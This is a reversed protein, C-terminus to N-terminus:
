GRGAGPGAPATRARRAREIVRVFAEDYDVRHEAIEVVPLGARDLAERIVPAAADADRVVIRWRRPEVEELAGTVVDLQTLPALAAADVRRALEVDVVEGHFAARRLNEPTDLMLLEGDSLVGVVDCFAAEGVYQTTVLMTRGGARLERFREWFKARLIPDIGATPEDLFLVPPDHVFSAALSLRRQMGGSVERVRKDRHEDLEVWALLRRLWRRRRFRLGYM